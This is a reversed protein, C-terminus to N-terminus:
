LSSMLATARLEKKKRSFWQQEILKNVVCGYDITKLLCLRTKGEVTDDCLGCFNMCLWLGILTGYWYSALFKIDSVNWLRVYLDKSHQTARFCLCFNLKGHFFICVCLFKRKIDRTSSLFIRQKLLSFSFHLRSVNVENNNRKRTYIAHKMNLLFFAM